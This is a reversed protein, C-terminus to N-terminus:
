KTRKRRSSQREQEIAIGQLCERFHKNMDHEAAAFSPWYVPLGSLEGDSKNVFINIDKQFIKYLIPSGEDHYASDAEWTADESESERFLLYKVSLKM